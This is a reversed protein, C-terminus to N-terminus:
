VSWSIFRPDPVGDIGCYSFVRIRVGLILDGADETLGYPDLYSRGNHLMPRYSEYAELDGRTSFLAHTEELELEFIICGLAWYDVSTGYKKRDVVVKGENALMEPAQYPWTGCIEASYEGYRHLATSGYNLFACGFDAIRV